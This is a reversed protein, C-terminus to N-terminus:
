KDYFLFGLTKFFRSESKSFKIFIMGFRKNRACIGPLFPSRFSSRHPFAWLTSFGRTRSPLCLCICRCFFGGCRSRCIYLALSEREGCATLFLTCPITLCLVLTLASKLIKKCFKKIIDIDFSLIAANREKVYKKLQKDNM